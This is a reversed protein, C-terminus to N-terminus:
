ATSFDASPAAGLQGKVSDIDGLVWLEAIRADKTRFFAAGAWAVESGTAEVGFFEAQHKGKFLMRAAVKDESAILDEIICVYNGLAQHVSRMYAIFDDPGRKELGLSGRFRFDEVLIERAVAEDARNWVENYFREVLETPATSM